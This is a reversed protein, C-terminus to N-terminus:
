DIRQCLFNLWQDAKGPRVDRSIWFDIPILSPVTKMLKGLTTETQNTFTRGDRQVEGKGYKFSGYLVGHPRLAMDLKTMVKQLDVQPVHLLSACAWIGDFEATWVIEEFTMHLVHVGTHRTAREVLEKSADFATVRYGADVFATVDRGSGCGADLVHRGTSVQSLFRNRTATMDANVTNAFFEDANLDYYSGSTM